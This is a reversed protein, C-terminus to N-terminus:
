LAPFSGVIGAKCQALVLPPHSIIFLPAAVVPIRLRSRLSDPIAM